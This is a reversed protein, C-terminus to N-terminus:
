TTSQIDGLEAPTWLFPLNSDPWSFAIRADAELIKLTSLFRFASLRSIIPRHGEKYVVEGKQTLDANWTDFGISGLFSELQTGSGHRGMIAAVRMALSTRIVWYRLMKNYGKSRLNQGPLEPISPPTAGRKTVVVPMPPHWITQDRLVKRLEDLTTALVVAQTAVIHGDREVVLNRSSPPDNKCLLDAENITEADQKERFALLRCRDVYAEDAKTAVRVRSFEIM